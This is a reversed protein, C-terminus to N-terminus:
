LFPLLHVSINNRNQNLRYIHKTTYQLLAYSVKYLIYWQLSYYIIVCHIFGTTNLIKTKAM